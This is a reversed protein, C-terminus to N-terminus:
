MYEPVAIGLIELTRELQSRFFDTDASTVRKGDEHRLLNELLIKISFPLKAVSPFGREELADLRFIQYATSGSRLTAAAGFSNQQTM